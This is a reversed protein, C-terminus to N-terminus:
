SLYNLMPSTNLLVYQLYFTISIEKEEFNYSLFIGM